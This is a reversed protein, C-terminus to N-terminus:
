QKAFWRKANRRSEYRLIMRDLFEQFKIRIYGAVFLPVLILVSLHIFNTLYSGIDPNSFVEYMVYRESQGFIWCLARTEGPVMCPM